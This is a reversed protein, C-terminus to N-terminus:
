AFLPGARRRIPSAGRGDRGRRRQAARAASKTVSYTSMEDGTSEEDSVSLHRPVGGAIGSNYYYTLKNKTPTADSRALARAHSAGRLRRLVASVPHEAPDQGVEDGLGGLGGGGSHWRVGSTNPTTKDGAM